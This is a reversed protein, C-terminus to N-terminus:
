TAYILRASAEPLMWVGDSRMFSRFVVQGNDAASYPDQSTEFGRRDAVTYSRRDLLLCAVADNAAAPMNDSLFVPYGLITGVALPNEQVTGTAQPLFVLRSNTDTSSVVAAHVAPSMIWSKQGTRYRGPLANMTDILNDIDVDAAATVGAADVDNIDSNTNADIAAKTACLGNPSTHTAPTQTSLYLADWGEAHAEIHQQLVDAVLGGRNDQLMELTIVSKARTSFAKIEIDTYTGELEQSSASEAVLTASAVRSAISPILANSNFTRVNAAARVASLKPLRRVLEDQLDTPVLSSDDSTNYARFEGRAHAIMNRATQEFPDDSTTTEVQAPGRRTFTPTDIAKTAREIIEAKNVEKNVELLRTEAAELDGVESDTLEGAKGILENITGRLEDAEARMARIDM